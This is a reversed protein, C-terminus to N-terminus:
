GSLRTIRFDMKQVGGGGVFFFFFFFFCGSELPEFAMSMDHELLVLSIVERVLKKKKKNEKVTEKEKKRKRKEKELTVLSRLGSSIFSRGIKKSERSYPTYLFYQM